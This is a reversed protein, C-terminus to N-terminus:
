FYQTSNLLKDKGSAWEYLCARGCPEIVCHQLDEEEAKQETSTKLLQPLMTSPSIGHILLSSGTTVPVLFNKWVERTESQHRKLAIAQPSNATCRSILCPIFRTIRRGAIPLYHTLSIEKAKIKCGTKSFSFESNLGTFSRKFILRIDM